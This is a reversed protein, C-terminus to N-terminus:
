SPLAPIGVEWGPLGKLIQEANKVPTIHGYHDEIMKVSTGMQKALFYVDVGETLRFTAYTHRFCYTSRRSGSSSNLLGLDTLLGDILSHNKLGVVGELQATRLDFLEPHICDMFSAEAMEKFGYAGIQQWSPSGKRFYMFVNQRYWFCVVKNGWFVPRFLDFPVFSHKAFLHAWYSHPQENIHNTGGQRSYAAIFLVADSADTKRLTQSRYPEEALLAHRVQSRHTAMAATMAATVKDARWLSGAYIKSKTFTIRARRDDGTLSARSAASRM